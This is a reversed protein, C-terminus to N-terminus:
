DQAVVDEDLFIRRFGSPTTTGDYVALNNDCVELYPCRFTADCQSEDQWWYGNKESVRMSQYIAYLTFSFARLEDDTRAIERRAFHKGPDAYIDALLRAGFMEPTERIAFPTEPNPTKKTPKPTAGMKVEAPTGDVTIWIGSPPNEADGPDDPGLVAEFQQGCYEGTEMFTKTEGQTLLKPRIQPKHWVDYLTEAFLPDDPGIGNPALLGERQMTRAALAYTSVQTDRNLRRWYISGSDIPKSTSKYEVNMPMGGRMIIRDIMGDLTVHPLARGSAPNRLPLSFKIETALTDLDDDQYYWLWGAVSYALIVRETAWDTPEVGTPITAYRANLWNTVRVIPEEDPVLGSGSCIPCDPIAANDLTKWVCLCPNGPQLKAVQLCGHWSTGMRQAETDDITRLGEIYALRFRTPCAKFCAICSASMKWDQKRTM